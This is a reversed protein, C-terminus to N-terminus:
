GRKSFWPGPDVPKGGNRIEFYLAPGELSGSDGVHGVVDDTTVEQAMEVMIRSLHGYLTYYGGGHDLIVIRGYGRFWDAFIVKGNYVARVPTGEASRITVGRSLTYTNFRANRNRGFGTITKGSVPRKLSGKLTPFASKGTRAQLDLAEVLKGLRQASDELEDLLRSYRSREDQIAALVLDRSSKRRDLVALNSELERRTSTLDTKAALLQKNQEKERRYLTTARSFLESDHRALQQLYYSRRELEDIGRAELIVKLYSVNGAKYLHVIRESLREGVNKRERGIIELKKESSRIRILLGKEDARLRRVKSRAAGIERELEEISGLIGSERTMARDLRDQTSDIREQVSELEERTDSLSRSTNEATASSALLLLLLLPLLRFCAKRMM